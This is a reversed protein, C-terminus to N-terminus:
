LLPGQGRMANWVCRIQVVDAAEDYSFYVHYRSRPVLVRRIAVERRDAYHLGLTPAKALAEFANALEVAFVQPTAIRHRHWWESIRRIQAEARPAVVLRTV